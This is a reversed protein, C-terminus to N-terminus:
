TYGIGKDYLLERVRTMLHRKLKLHELVKTHEHDKGHALVPGGFTLPPCPGLSTGLAERM